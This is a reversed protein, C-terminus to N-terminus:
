RKARDRKMWRTVNPLFSEVPLAFNTVRDVRAINLAVARDYENTNLFVRKSRGMVVRFVGEFKDLWHISNLPIGTREAAQEKTLKEGEWVAIHENTERLFLMERHKEEPADPFLVLITEEQDVGSLYFLDSSQHFLMTGDANTPYIDNAQLIVLSGPPLKKRLRKRAATFLTAPLPSYRM